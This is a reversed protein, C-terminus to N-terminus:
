FARLCFLIKQGQLIGFAAGRNELYSLELVGRILPIAPQDKLCAVALLKTWQDIFVLCIVALFAAAADWVRKKM